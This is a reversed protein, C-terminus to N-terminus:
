SIRNSDFPRPLAAIAPLWARYRELSFPPYGALYHNGFTQGDVEWEILYLRQDSAYTRIRAVQWNQNAPVLPVRGDAVTEGARRGLGPLAGRGHTGAHRQQRGGAPVQGAGARRHDRVGAAPRAPHLPLGAEQRLLLGRHRRLVAALRRDREVVPHRQHAVQAAPDIEIFFKKAEAQTIQSALAFTELDDPIVGFLERVQNAMLQIRDRDIAHHQWHYVAHVQWEDNDQWPWLQEPRSSAASALVVNPCGHYGIEGIFHASHQTYFPSKFYGRPGWLHQEPTRTWRTRRAAGVAPPVYPSSPVYARHPDCRHVVQPIVERTLRNHEPSLGDSVYAM